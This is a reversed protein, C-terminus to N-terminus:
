QLLIPILNKRMYIDYIKLLIKYFKIKIQAYDEQNQKVNMFKTKENLLFGSFKQYFLLNVYFILSNLIIVVVAM